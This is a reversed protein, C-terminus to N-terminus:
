NSSLSRIAAKNKEIFFDQELQSLRTIDFVRSVSSQVLKLKNEELNLFNILIRLQDVRICSADIAEQMESMRKTEIPIQSIFDTFSNFQKQDM